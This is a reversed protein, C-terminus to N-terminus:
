QSLVDLAQLICNKYLNWGRPIGSTHGGPVWHIHAGKWHNHLQLSSYRPICADQKATILFAAKLNQPPPYNEIDFGSLFQRIVQKANQTNPLEANLVDWAVRRALVGETYCPIVSHSAALSVSALPLQMKATILAAISGGMSIGSVGLPGYGAEKLWQLLSLGEEISTDLMALLDIFQNLYFETQNTPRRKGYFSNELIVSAIGHKALTAALFRRTLFGQEGTAAFHICAPIGQERTDPRILEVHATQSMPSLLLQNVPTQFKGRNRRFKKLFLRDEGWSIDIKYPPHPQLVRRSFAKATNEDEWSLNLDEIKYSKGLLQIDGWGQQFVKKRILLTFGWQDLFSDM